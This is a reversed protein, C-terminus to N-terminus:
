SIKLSLIDLKKNFFIVHPMLHETKGEREKGEMILKSVLFVLVKIAWYYQRNEKYPSGGKSDRLDLTTVIWNFFFFAGLVLVLHNMVLLNKMMADKVFEFLM